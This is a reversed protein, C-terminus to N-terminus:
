MFLMAKTVPPLRPSPSAVTAARAAGTARGDGGAPVADCDLSCDLPEPLLPQGDLRQDHVHRRQRADGFRGGLNPLPVAPQVHQDVVGADKRLSDRGSVVVEHIGGDQRVGELRVHEARHRHDLREEREQADLVAPRITM